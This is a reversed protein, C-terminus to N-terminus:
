RKISKCSGFYVYSKQSGLITSPLFFNKKKNLFDFKKNLDESRFTEKKSEYYSPLFTSFPIVEIKYSSCNYYSQM